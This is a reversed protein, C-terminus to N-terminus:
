FFLYLNVIHRPRASTMAGNSIAFCQNIPLIVRFELLLNRRLLQLTTIVLIASAANYYHCHRTCTSSLEPPQPFPAAFGQPSPTLHPLILSGRLPLPPRGQVKNSDECERQSLSLPVSGRVGYSTCFCDSRTIVRCPVLVFLIQKQTTVLVHKM